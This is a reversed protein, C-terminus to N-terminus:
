RERKVDDRHREITPQSVWIQELRKKIEAGRDHQAKAEKGAQVKKAHQAKNGAIEAELRTYDPGRTAKAIEAERQLRRKDEPRM